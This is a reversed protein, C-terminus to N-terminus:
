NSLHSASVSVVINLQPQDNALQRYHLSELTQIFYMVIKWFIHDFDFTDYVKAKHVVSYHLMRYTEVQDLNIIRM